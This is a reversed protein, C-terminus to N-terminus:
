AAGALGAYQLVWRRAGDFIFRAANSASKDAGGNDLAATSRAPAENCRSERYM